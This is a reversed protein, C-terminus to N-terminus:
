LSELSAKITDYNPNYPQDTFIAKIVGNKCIYVRPVRTKAFLEYIKRDAQASYPMTYKKEIWYNSVTEPGDERSILAFQVGQSSYDNYLEQVHPLVMRCDPCETTFFVICSKGKRLQKGTMESGDNMVISFDPIRDGVVLEEGSQNEKICSIFSLSLLIYIILKRM